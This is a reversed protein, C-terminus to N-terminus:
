YGTHQGLWLHAEEKKMAPVRITVTTGVGLESEFVIGYNEGYLRKLRNNINSLGISKGREGLTHEEMKLKENIKDADEGVGNDHVSVRLVKEEMTTLITVRKEEKRSNKLGHSLANEVLPEISIRPLTYQYTERELQFEYQISSRNRVDMVYIYNRVHGMEEAVTALSDTMNLSYRFINALSRSLNSVQTCNQINAISSMTDLTNYLFHPNIQAQLTQYEARELLMQTEYKQQTLMQTEDLMENFSQALTNIEDQREDVEVRLSTNGEKIQNITATLKELPGTLSRSILLSLLFVLFFLASAIILITELLMRISNSLFRQPTLVYANLNYKVQAEQYFDYNGWSSMEAIESKNQRIEYTLNQYANEQFDSIKGVSFLARDGGPQLWIKMESMNQYKTVIEELNSSNVDCVLYGARRTVDSKKYLKLVFRLINTKRDSRFLM